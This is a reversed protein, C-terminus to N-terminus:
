EWEDVAVSGVAGMEGLPKGGFSDHVLIRSLSLNQSGISVYEWAVQPNSLAKKLILRAEGETNAGITVQITTIYAPRAM